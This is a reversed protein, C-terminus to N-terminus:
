ADMEEAEALRETECLQCVAPRPTNATLPSGQIRFGCLTRAETGYASVLRHWQEGDWGYDTDPDLQNGPAPDNARDLLARLDASM